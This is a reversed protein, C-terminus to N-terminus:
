PVNLQIQVTSAPTPATNGTGSIVAGVTINTTGAPTNFTASGTGCGSLAAACGTLLVFAILTTLRMTSFRSGAARQSRRAYALLLTPLLLFLTLFAALAPRGPLHALGGVAGPVAIAPPQNIAVSFTVSASTAGSPLDVYAPNFSCTSYAPLGSCTFDAAGVFGAVPVVTLTLTGSGGV